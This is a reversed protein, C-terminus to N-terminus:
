LAYVYAGITSLEPFYFDAATYYNQESLKAIRYSSTHM